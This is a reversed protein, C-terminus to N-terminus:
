KMSDIYLSHQLALLAVINCVSLNLTRGDGASDVNM